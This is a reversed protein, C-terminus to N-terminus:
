LKLNEYLKGSKILSQVRYISTNGSFVIIKDRLHLRPFHLSPKGAKNNSIADEGRFRQHNIRSVQLGKCITHMGSGTLFNGSWLGESHSYFHWRSSNNVTTSFKSRLPKWTTACDRGRTTTLRAQGQM